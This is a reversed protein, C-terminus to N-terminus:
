EEAGREAKLEIPYGFPDTIYVAPATGTAGLPTLRRDVEVEAAALAREIGDITDDIRVAIHDYGTRAPPEFDEDPEIHIVAGPALRVSFFPKEGSEYREMGDIGFGLADRYFGVATDRGDSPVYLKSHDIETAEM